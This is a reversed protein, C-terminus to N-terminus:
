AGSGQQSKERAAIAMEAREAAVLFAGGFAIILLGMWTAMWIERFATRRQILGNALAALMLAGIGMVIWAATRLEGPMGPTPEIYIKTFFSMTYPDFQGAKWWALLVLVPMLGLAILVRLGGAIPHRPDSM